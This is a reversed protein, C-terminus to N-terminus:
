GGTRKLHRWLILLGVGAVLSTTGIMALPLGWFLWSRDPPQDIVIGAVGWLYAGVGALGVGILAIGLWLAVIRLM